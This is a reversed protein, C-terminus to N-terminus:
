YDAGKRFGIYGSLSQISIGFTVATTQCWLRMWYFDTVGQLMWIVFILLWSPELWNEQCHRPSDNRATFVTDSIEKRNWLINRYITTTKAFSGAKPSLKRSLIRSVKLFFSKVILLNTQIAHNKLNKSPPILLYFDHNENELSFTKYQNHVLVNEFWYVTSLFSGFFHISKCMFNIKKPLHSAHWTWNIHNTPHSWLQDKAESFLLVFSALFSNAM